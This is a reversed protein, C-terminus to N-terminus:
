SSWGCGTPVAGSPLAASTERCNPCTVVPWVRVGGDVKTSVQGAPVLNTHVAGCRYCAERHLRAISVGPPAIRVDPPASVIVM